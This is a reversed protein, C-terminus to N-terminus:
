KKNPNLNIVGKKPMRLRLFKNTHASTYLVPPPILTGANVEINSAKGRIPSKSSSKDVSLNNKQKLSSLRVVQSKQM